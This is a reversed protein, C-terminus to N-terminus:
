VNIMLAQGFRLHRVVQRKVRQQLKDAYKLEAQRRLGGLDALTRRTSRVHCNKILRRICLMSEHHLTETEAM